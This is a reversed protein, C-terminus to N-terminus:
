NESSIIVNRGECQLQTMLTTKLKERSSSEKFNSKSDRDYLEEIILLALQKVRSDEKPLNDIAGNLTAEAVKIFNSINKDSMEDNYDIGLYVKVEDLTPM